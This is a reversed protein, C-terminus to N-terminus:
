SKSAKKLFIWFNPLTWRSRCAVSLIIKLIENWNMVDASHLFFVYSLNVSPVLDMWFELRPMSPHSCHVVCVDSM